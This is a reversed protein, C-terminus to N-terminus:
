VEGAPISVDRVYDGSSRGPVFTAANYHAEIIGIFHNLDQIPCTFRGNGCRVLVPLLRDITTLADVEEKTIFYHRAEITRALEPAKQRVIEFRKAM